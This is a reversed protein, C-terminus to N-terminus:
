DPLVSNRYRTEQPPTVNAYAIEGNQTEVDTIALPNRILGNSGDRHRPPPLTHVADPGPPLLALCEKWAGRNEGPRM